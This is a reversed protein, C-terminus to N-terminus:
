RVWDRWTGELEPHVFRDAEEVGASRKFLRYVLIVLGLMLVGGVLSAAVQSGEYM